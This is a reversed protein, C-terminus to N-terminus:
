AYMDLLRNRAVYLPADPAAPEGPAGSGETGATAPWDEQDDAGTDKSDQSDSQAFSADSLNFGQQQLADKLKPLLAEMSDKVGANQVVFQVRTDSGDMELRIDVRGLEPPHLQIRAQDVGARRMMVVRDLTQVAATRAAPM